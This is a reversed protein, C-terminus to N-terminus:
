IHSQFFLPVPIAVLFTGRWEPQRLICKSLTKLIGLYRSVQIGPGYIGPGYIGMSVQDVSVWPYRTWLYWTGLSIHWSLYTHVYPDCSHVSYCSVIVSSLLILSVYVHESKQDWFHDFTTWSPQINTGFTTLVFVFLDRFAGFHNSFPEQLM